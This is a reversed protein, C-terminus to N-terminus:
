HRDFLSTSFFIEIMITLMILETPKIAVIIPLVLSLLGLRIPMVRPELMWFGLSLPMIICTPTLYMRMRSDDYM